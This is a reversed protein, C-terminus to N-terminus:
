SPPRCAPSRTPRMLTPWKPPNTRPAGSSSSPGWATSFSMSESRTASTTSASRSWPWTRAGHRARRKGLGALRRIPESCPGCWTAWFELFVIRGRFDAIKVPRGTELDIATEATALDGARLPMRFSFDQRAPQDKVRFQGLHEGGVDVWYQGGYESTGSATINEIAIRGDAGLTGKAVPLLGYNPLIYSVRYEEGGLPRDGAPSIVVNAALKGRWADPNFPPPDFAVSVQEGPKLDLKRMDRFEGARALM